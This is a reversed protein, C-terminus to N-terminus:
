GGIGDRAQAEPGCYKRESNESKVFIVWQGVGKSVGESVWEGVWKSM